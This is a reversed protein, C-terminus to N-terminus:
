ATGFSVSNVDTLCITLHESVSRKQYMPGSAAQL